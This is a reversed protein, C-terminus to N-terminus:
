FNEDGKFNIQEENKLKWLQFNLNNIKFNDRKKVSANLAKLEGKLM